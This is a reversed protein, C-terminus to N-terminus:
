EQAGPREALDRRLHDAGIGVTAQGIREQAGIDGPGLDVGPGERERQLAHLAAVLEHHGGAARIRELPLALARVAAREGALPQAGLAVRDLAAGGLDHEADDGLVDELQRPASSPHIHQPQPAGEGRTPSASVPRCARAPPPYAPCPVGPPEPCPAQHCCRAKDSRSAGSRSSGGGARGAASDAEGVLPSPSAGLMSTRVSSSAISRSEARPNRASAAGTEWSLAKRSPRWSVPNLRSNHRLMASIPQVPTSTGSSYPPSAKPLTPAASIQSSIPRVSVAEGNREVATMAAVARVPPPESACFRRQSGAMTAPSAIRASATSSPRLCSGACVANLASFDPLPNRSSPLLVKTASPWTASASITAARVEPSGPSRSPRESKRTSPVACPSDRSRVMMTSLRLAARSVKSPTCTSSASASPSIPRPWSRRSRTSSVPRVPRAASSDPTACSLKSRVTEYM